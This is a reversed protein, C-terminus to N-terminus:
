QGRCVVSEGEAGWGTGRFNTDNSRVVFEASCDEVRATPLPTRAGATNSIGKSRNSVGLTLSVGSNTGTNQLTRPSRCVVGGLGRTVCM